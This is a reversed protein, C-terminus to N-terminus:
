PITVLYRVSWQYANASCPLYLQFTVTHYGLGATYIGQWMHTQTSGPNPLAELLPGGDVSSDDVLGVIAWESKCTAEGVSAMISMAFTCGSYHGCWITKQEITTYGSALTEGVNGADLVVSGIKSTVSTVAHAQVNATGSTTMIAGVILPAITQWNMGVGM